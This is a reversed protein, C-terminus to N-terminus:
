ESIFRSLKTLKLSLYILYCILQDSVNLIPYQSTTICKSPLIRDSGREGFNCAYPDADSKTKNGSQKERLAKEDHGQSLIDYSFEVLDITILVRARKWHRMGQLKSKCIGIPPGM